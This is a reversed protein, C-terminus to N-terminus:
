SDFKYILKYIEEKIRIKIEFMITNNNKIMEVDVLECRTEYKTFFEDIILIIEEKTIETDKDFLLDIFPNGYEYYEPIEGKVTRIYNTISNIIADVGYCYKDNNKIVELKSNKVKYVICDSLDYKLDWFPLVEKM